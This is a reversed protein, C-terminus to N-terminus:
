RSRRVVSTAKRWRRTLSAKARAALVRELDSTTAAAPFIPPLETKGVALTDWSLVGSAALAGTAIRATIDGTIAAPEPMVPDHGAKAKPTLLDLDGVIRVPSSRLGAVIEEAIGEVIPRAWGPVDVKVADPDAPFQKM